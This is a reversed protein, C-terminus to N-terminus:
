DLGKYGKEAIATNHPLLMADGAGEIGEAVPTEVHPDVIVVPQRLVGSIQDQPHSQQEKHEPSGQVGVQLYVEHTLAVSVGLTEVVLFALLEISALSGIKGFERKLEEENPTFSYKEFFDYLENVFKVWGTSRSRYPGDGGSKRSLYLGAQARLLHFEQLVTDDQNDKTSLEDMLTGLAEAMEPPFVAHEYGDNMESCFDKDTKKTPIKFPFGSFRREALSNIADNLLDFCSRVSKEDNPGAQDSTARSRDIEDKLVSIDDRLSAIIELLGRVHVDEPKPAQAATTTFSARSTRSDNDYAATPPHRSGMSDRVPDHNIVNIKM